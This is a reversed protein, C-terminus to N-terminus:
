QKRSNSETTILLDRGTLFRNTNRLFTYLASAFLTNRFPSIYMSIRYKWNESEDYIICDNRWNPVRAVNRYTRCTGKNLVFSEEVSKYHPNESSSDTHTGEFWGFDKYMSLNPTTMFGSKLIYEISADLPFKKIKREIGLRKIKNWTTRTIVGACGHLGFRLNSYTCQLNDEIHKSGLNIGRFFKNDHYTGIIFKTFELSKNHLVVDEEVSLIWDCNMQDFGIKWSLWRNSNMNELASKGSGDVIVIKTLSDRFNEVLSEVDANGKQVIILKGISQAGDMQYLSKLCERLLEPRSYTSLNILGRLQKSTM